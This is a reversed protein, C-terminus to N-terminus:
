SRMLCKIMIVEGLAGDGFVTVLMLPQLNLM